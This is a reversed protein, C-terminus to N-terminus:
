ANINAELRNPYIKWCAFPEQEMQEQLAKLECRFQRMCDAGRDDLALYSFDEMLSTRKVNLNFNANVLRQYVDLPVRQGNKYIRVPQIAGWLQYNWLGTGLAEHEVTALYIFAAILEAAGEMTPKEGALRSIGNPILRELSDVWSRFHPDARLEDDSAYYLGLYRTAHARMVQFLAVRNSLVPTEFGADLIGRGAADREPSLVSIDYQEYTDAFLRCMGQHTFSFITPFDGGKVMQGRTVIENSYQTGYVHPWLLRRLPHDAPLENRTAIALPGGAALHVGNFHRVLSLHTTVACLAIEKALNWNAEGPRCLGLECDIQTAELASEAANLRFVVRVGLSRLGEHHEYGGLESLDWQFNGDSTREVYCAYPSAVAIRGLDLEGRYEEPLVPASFLKRHARTYAEALAKEPGADIPPLGRQMPSFVKYMALQFKYFFVKRPQAEDKPVRDAVRINPIPISPFQSAFSVVNLRREDNPPAPIVAPENKSFKFTALRNWFSKRVAWVLKSWGSSRDPASRFSASEQDGLLLQVSEAQTKRRYAKLINVEGQNLLGGSVFEPHTPSAYGPPPCENEARIAKAADILQRRTVGDPDEFLVDRGFVRGKGGTDSLVAEETADVIYTTGQHTIRLMYNPVDGRFHEERWADGLGMDRINQDGWTIIGNAELPHEDPNDRANTGAFEYTNITQRRELWQRLEPCHLYLLKEKDIAEVLNIATWSVEDPRWKETLYPNKRIRSTAEQVFTQFGENTIALGEPRHENLTLGIVADLTTIGEPYLEKLKAIKEQSAPSAPDVFLHEWKESPPINHSKQYDTWSPTGRRRDQRIEQELLNTVGEETAMDRFFDATNGAVPAGLRTHMMYYYVAGLGESRIFDHGDLERLSKMNVERTSADVKDGIAPCKLRDVWIVHGFRYAKSFYNGKIEPKAKRVKGAAIGHAIPDTGQEPRYIKKDFHPLKREARGFLNANLGDVVAENAFLTHTWTGTHIKAYTMTVVRRAIQFIQNDSWNKYRSRLIDAVWNHHRVYLTHEAELPATMNRGFGTVIQRHKRGGPGTVERVPLFLGGKGDAAMGELYLKGGPVPTGDPFSRLEALTEIDSGYLHSMDWWVTTGHMSEGNDGHFANPADSRIWHHTVGLAALESDPDVAIAHKRKNDPATQAVDHVLQQLHAAAHFSATKAEITRGNRYGFVKVVEAESPLRLNDSQDKPRYGVPMGHDVFEQGVRGEAPGFQDSVYAGDPSFGSGAWEPLTKRRALLGVIAGREGDPDRERKEMWTRGAGLAALRLVAIKRQTWRGANGPTAGKNALAGIPGLALSVLSDKFNRVHDFVSKSPIHDGPRQFDTCLVWNASHNRYEDEPHSRLYNETLKNPRLVGVGNRGDVRNAAIQSTWSGAFRHNPAKDVAKQLWDAASDFDGVNRFAHAALAFDEASATGSEDRARYLDIAAAFNGSNIQALPDNSKIDPQQNHRADYPCGFFESTAVAM